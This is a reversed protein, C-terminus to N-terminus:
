GKVILETASIATGATVSPDAATTGITGDNQVFYTQGATLGSQNRDITNATNISASQTTAFAGDSFGIFNESTINTSGITLVKSNGSDTAGSRDKTYTTVAKDNSTDYAMTIDQGYSALIVVPDADVSISTGSVTAIKTELQNSNGDDAYSIIIKSTDPDYLLRIGVPSNSLFTTKSGFSISTGSITGVLVAGNTNSTDQYAVIFKNNSSDYVTWNFISNTDIEVESGFSISTGSVTAVVCAVKDNDNRRYTILTKNSSSDYDHLPTRMAASLFTSASGFSISTGSVTGVIAKGNDSSGADQYTIIVKNATSDFCSAVHNANGSYWVVPTGFSISNGSVTGVISKGYAYDGGAYSIVIKNNSSDFTMGDHLSVFENAFTVISGFSISTGSVTGVLCKGKNSDDGDRYAIVVKNNSSDFASINQTVSGGSPEDWAVESGYATDSGAVVSVTGDANVVVAKGDTLAGSAVARVQGDKAINGFSKM